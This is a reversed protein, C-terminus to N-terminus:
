APWELSQVEDKGREKGRGLGDYGASQYLGFCEQSGAAGIRSAKGRPRLRHDYREWDRGAVSMTLM